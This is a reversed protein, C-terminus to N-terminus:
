AKLEQGLHESLRHCLATILLTPHSAGSTVFTASSAVYLNTTGHVRLNPAVVSTEANTGMRAGGMHHHGWTIPTEQMDTVGLDAMIKAVTARAHDFSRQDRESFSFELHAAPDGFANKLDPSLTVRNEATPAIEMSAVIKFTQDKNLYFVLIPSGFGERKFEEYFQHSRGIQSNRPAPRNKLNGSFSLAPHEMFFRGVLDNANGIGSPFADSRSLLLLRASEVAGSAVIYTRAKVVGTAQDLSKVEVGEITGDAAARLRTATVGSILLANPSEVFKPLFDTEVRIPGKENYLGVSTPSDDITIGVSQALAQLDGLKNRGPLPLDAKRPAHYQSLKAGGVRLTQEAREYYPEIDAYSIPWPADAPTYTNQEFDLPHFRACRGTWASSTGGLARVRTAAVPYNTNGSNQYVELGKVREDAAKLSMGSELIVTRLGQAALDQGLVAGAFGSGIICVDFPATQALLDELDGATLNPAPRLSCGTVTV